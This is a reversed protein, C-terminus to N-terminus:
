IEAFNTGESLIGPLISIMAPEIVTYALINPFISIALVALVLIIPSILMGIPAEHVKKVPLMDPKFKGRFTRFFIIGSYTFTFISAVWAIVPLILIPLACTQVGTVNRD